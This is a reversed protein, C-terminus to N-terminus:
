EGVHLTGWHGNARHGPMNCYYVFDGVKDAMFEIVVEQDLPTAQHINFEDINFNHMGKTNTVKIRVKDGKKVALEKLSFQPKPTNGEMVYFSTMIFEKVSGAAVAAASDRGAVPEPTAPPTVSADIGGTTNTPATVVDDAGKSQMRDFLMYGGALVVLAIIIAYLYKINM